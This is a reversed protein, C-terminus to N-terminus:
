NNCRSSCFDFVINRIDKFKRKVVQGEAKILENKNGCGSMLATGTIAVASNIIFERRKMM